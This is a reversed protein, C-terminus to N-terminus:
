PQPVLEVLQPLDRALGQDLTVLRADHTRALGALYADTVQRHDRVHSLDVEAYSISDYWRECRASDHLVRLVAQANSASEGLRILFRVLAGEVVPCIAFREVGRLWQVVREHHEHERTVAAILVNADLLYDSM